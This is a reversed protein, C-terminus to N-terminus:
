QLPAYGDGTWICSRFSFCFGIFVWIFTLGLHASAIKLVYLFIMVWSQFCCLQSWGASYKGSFLYIGSMDTMFSLDFIFILGQPHSEDHSTSWWLNLLYSMVGQKGFLIPALVLTGLVPGLPLAGRSPIVWHGLFSDHDNAHLLTLWHIAIICLGCFYVYWWHNCEQETSGVCSFSSSMFWM